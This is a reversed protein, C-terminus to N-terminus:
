SETDNETPRQIQRQGSAPTHFNFLADRHVFFVGRGARHAPLVGDSIAKRLMKVFMEQFEPKVGAAEAASKLDLFLAPKAPRRTLNATVVELTRALEHMIQEPAFNGQEPMQERPMVQVRPMMAAQLVKQVQHPNLVLIGKRGSGLMHRERKEIQGDAIRREITRETIQLVKAAVSKPIWTNLDDADIEEPPTQMLWERLEGVDAPLEFPRPENQENTTVTSMEM